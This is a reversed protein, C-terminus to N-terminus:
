TKGTSHLVERVLWRPALVECDQSPELFPLLYGEEREERMCALGTESRLSRLRSKDISKEPRTLNHVYVTWVELQLADIRSTGAHARWNTREREIKLGSEQLNREGTGEAICYAHKTKEFIQM